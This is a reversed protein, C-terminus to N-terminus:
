LFLVAAAALLVLGFVLAFPGLVYRTLKMARQMGLLNVWARGRGHTLGWRAVKENTTLLLGIVTLAIAMSLVVIDKSDM